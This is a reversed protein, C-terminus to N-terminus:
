PRKELMLRVLGTLDPGSGGRGGIRLKGGSASDLEVTWEVPPCAVAAAVEVFAASPSAAVSRGMGLDDVREKLDHYQLRLTRATRSVGHRAGLEAALQWLEDPIRRGARFGRWAEFRRAGVELATVGTSRGRAM